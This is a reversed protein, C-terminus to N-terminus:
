YAMEDAFHDDTAQYLEDLTVWYSGGASSDVWKIYPDTIAIENGDDSYGNANLFHGPTSYRWNGGKSFKLRCMTPKKNDVGYEVMRLVASKSPDSVIVYNGDIKQNVYKVM